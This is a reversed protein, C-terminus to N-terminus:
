NRIIKFFMQPAPGLLPISITVTGDGNDVLGCADLDVENPPDPFPLVPSAYVTIGGTRPGGAARADVEDVVSALPVVLAVASQTATIKSVPVPGSVFVVQAVDTDGGAVEVAWRTGNLVVEYEGEPLWLCVVGEPSAYIGNLGYGGDPAPKVSVSCAADAVLNSIMVKCLTNGLADVPRPSAVGVGAPVASGGVVVLSKYAGLTSDVVNGVSVAFDSQSPTPSLEASSGVGGAGYAVVTGNSIVVAGDPVRFAGKGAGVGAANEGGSAYLRGGVVVVGGPALNAEVGGGVGAASDGGQAYIVGGAVVIRGPVGGSEDARGGNSGIGAGFRGGAARLTGAGDLTLAAGYAVEIGASYDGLAEVVNEGSFALTCANSVVVPPSRAADPASSIDLGAFTVSEAGGQPVVIKVAGRRSMGSITVPVSADGLTLAHSKSDYTWGSGAGNIASFLQGGNVTLLYGWYTNGNTTVAYNFDFETGDDFAAHAPCVRNGTSPLWVTMRGNGDTYMGRIGYYAAQSFYLNTVAARPAGTDITLPYLANSAANVPRPDAYVANVAGGTIEITGTAAGTGYGTGLSNGYEGGTATITGGVIGIEGGPANAGGGIGSAQEGGTARVRATEIGIVGGSGSHGGGIGAGAYGGQATM